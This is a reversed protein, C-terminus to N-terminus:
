PLGPVPFVETALNTPSINADMPNSELPCVTSTLLASKTPSYRPCVAGLTLSFISYAFPPTRNMSSAYLKFEFCGPSEYPFSANVVRTCSISCFLSSKTTMMAPYLSSICSKILTFAPRFLRM